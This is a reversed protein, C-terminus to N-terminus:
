KMAESQMATLKNLLKQSEALVVDFDKCFQVTHILVDNQCYEKRVDKLEQMLFLCAFGTTALEKIPGGIKM